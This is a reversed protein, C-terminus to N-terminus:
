RSSPMSVLQSSDSPSCAVPAARIITLSTVPCFSIRTIGPAQLWIVLSSIWLRSASIAPASRSSSCISILRSASSSIMRRAWTWPTRVTSFGAGACGMSSASSAMISVTVGLSVSAQARVPTCTTSRALALAAAPTNRRLPTRCTTMVSPLWPTYTVSPLRSSSYGRSSTCATSVVPAPSAKLPPNALARASPRFTKAAARQPLQVPASDTVRRPVAGAM